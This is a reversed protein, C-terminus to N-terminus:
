RWSFEQRELAPVDNLIQQLHQGMEKDPLHTLDKSTASIVARSLVPDLEARVLGLFHPPAVMLLSDFQGRRHADQLEGALRHAFVRAETEVAPTQAGLATVMKQAGRMHIRGPKDGMLDSERLRGRPHEIERIHVITRGGDFTAFIRAGAADSVLIWTNM